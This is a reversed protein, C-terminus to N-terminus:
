TGGERVRISWNIACLGLRCTQGPDSASAAVIVEAFDKEPIGAVPSIILQGDFPLLYKPRGLRSRKGSALIIASDQM